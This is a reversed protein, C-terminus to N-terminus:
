RLCIRVRLAKGESCTRTRPPHTIQYGDRQQTHLNTESESGKSNPLWILESTIQFTALSIVCDGGVSDEGDVEGVDLGVIDGEVPVSAGVLLGTTISGSIPLCM